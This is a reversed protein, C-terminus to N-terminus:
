KSASESISHRIPRCRTREIALALAPLAQRYARTVLHDSGYRERIDRSYQQLSVHEGSPGTLQDCYDLADALASRERPFEALQQSLGRLAVEFRAGSHHAVLAALRQDGLSRVYWAGDLPHFGTTALSPVYGIDHLYAAAILQPRTM